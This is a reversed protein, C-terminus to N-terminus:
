GSILVGLVLAVAGGVSSLAGGIALKRKDGRAQTHIWAGVGALLFFLFKIGFWMNFSSPMGDPYDASVELFNWMGTFLLLAYAPWAFMNFRQAAQRPADPGIGKLTPVLGGMVIQGGVWVAAGILHLSLRLTDFASQLGFM